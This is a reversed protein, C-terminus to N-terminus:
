QCSVRNPGHLVACTACYNCNRCVAFDRVGHGGGACGIELRKSRVLDPCVGEGVGDLQTVPCDAPGGRGHFNFADVM